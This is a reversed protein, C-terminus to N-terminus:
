ERKKRNVIANAMELLKTYVRKQREKGGEM